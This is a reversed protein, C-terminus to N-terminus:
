DLLRYVDEAHEMPRLLLTDFIDFSIVSVESSSFGYIIENLSTYEKHNM